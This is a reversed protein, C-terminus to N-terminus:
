RSAMGSAAGSAKVFMDSELAFCISAVIFIETAVFAMGIMILLCTTNSWLCLITTGGKRIARALSDLRGPGEIWHFDQLLCYKYGEGPWTGYHDYTSSASDMVFAGRAVDILNVL